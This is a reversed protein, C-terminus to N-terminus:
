SHITLIIETLVDEHFDTRDANAKNQAKLLTNERKLEDVEQSLPKIYEPEKAPENPDPYSFQLQKTEPNVRYGNSEAFDQAYDNVGIEIVDIKDINMELLTRYTKLEEEISLTRVGIHDTRTEFFVQGNSILYYLRKM